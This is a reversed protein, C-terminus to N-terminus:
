NRINRMLCVRLYTVIIFILSSFVFKEPFFIDFGFFIFSCFVRDTFNTSFYPVLVLSIFSLFHICFKFLFRILFLDSWSGPICISFLTPPKRTNNARVVLVLWVYSQLVAKSMCQKPWNRKSIRRENKDIKKWNWLLIAKKSNHSETKRSNYTHCPFCHYFSIKFIM